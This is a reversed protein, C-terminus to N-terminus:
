LFQQFVITFEAGQNNNQISLTGQLHKEVIM